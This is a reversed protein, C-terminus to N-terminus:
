IGQRGDQKWRNMNRQLEYLSNLLADFFFSFVFNSCARPIKNALFRNKESEFHPARRGASKTVRARGGIVVCEELYCDSSNSVSFVFHHMM